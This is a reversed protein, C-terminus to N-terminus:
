LFMRVDSLAISKGTSLDLTVGNAGQKVAAVQTFTLAEAKVTSGAGTAAVSFQYNGAAVVEGADNKGDWKVGNAGEPLAGLEMTRVKNGKADTITVTVDTAGNAPLEVAFPVERPSEVGTTEDKVMELSLANGPSLVAYGILSAAQLVQNSGTQSVLGSLTANLQEIGSVTSMQALQSTLEANDMPNLPDQNNLQTVLLKLFRKESDANSTGTTASAAAATDTGVTSTSTIAM